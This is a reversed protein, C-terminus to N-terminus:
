CMASLDEKWSESELLNLTGKPGTEGASLCMVGM